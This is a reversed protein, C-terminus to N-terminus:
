RKRTKQNKNFKDYEQKHWKSVARALKKGESAALKGEHIFDNIDKPSQGPESKVIGHIFANRKDRWEGVANQLSRGVRDDWKIPSPVKSKWKIVLTDFRSRLNIKDEKIGFLFSYLRDCIISEEIAIAEIFFGAELSKNIRMWAEEYSLYKNINGKISTKTKVSISM